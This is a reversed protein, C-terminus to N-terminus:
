SVLPISRALDLRLLSRIKSEIQLYRAAKSAPLVKTLNDTYSKRLAVEAEEVALADDLLKAATGDSISGKGYADAYELITGALRQNIRDLQQQYADYLPWFKAAEAETLNMNNAVLLKKDAKIKDLLIQMNTSDSASSRGATPDPSSSRGQQPESACAQCLILSMFIPGFSIFRM